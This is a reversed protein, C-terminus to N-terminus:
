YFFMFILLLEYRDLIPRLFALSRVIYDKVTKKSVGM